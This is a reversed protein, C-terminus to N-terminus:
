KASVERVEDAGMDRGESEVDESVQAEGVSRVEGILEKVEGTGLKNLIRGIENDVEKERMKMIDGNLSISREVPKGMSRDMVQKTAELKVRESGGLMLSIQTLAALPSAENLILDADKESKIRKFVPLWEEVLEEVLRRKDLAECMDEEKKKARNENHQVMPEGMHDLVSRELGASRRVRGLDSFRMRRSM